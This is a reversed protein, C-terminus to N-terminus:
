GRAPHLLAQWSDATAVFMAFATVLLLIALLLKRRQLYRNRVDDIERHSKSQHALSEARLADLEDHSFPM